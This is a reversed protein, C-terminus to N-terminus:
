SRALGRFFDDFEADANVLDDLAERREDDMPELLTVHSRAM